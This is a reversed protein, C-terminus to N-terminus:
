PHGGAASKESLARLRTMRIMRRLPDERQFTDSFPNCDKYPATSSYLCWTGAIPGIREARPAKGLNQEILLHNCPKDVTAWDLEADEARWTEPYIQRWSPYVFLDAGCVGENPTRIIGGYREAAARSAAPLDDEEHAALSKAIEPLGGDPGCLFFASQPPRGTEKARRLQEALLGEWLVRDDFQCSVSHLDARAALNLIVTRLEAHLAGPRLSEEPPRNPEFQQEDSPV